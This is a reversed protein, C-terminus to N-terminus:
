SEQPPPQLAQNLKGTQYGELDLTIFTFGIQKLEFTIRNMLELNFLQEREEPAVEIRALDGHHRVRIQKLGQEILFAEAKEVMGLVEVTIRTHYPIRSALCAMSPKNWTQLDIKKSAERIDDKTFGAEILPSRINMEELAKMGPRYDSLDDINSGDMLTSFGKSSAHNVLSEFITKKCLYCRQPTNALVSDDPTNLELVEHTIGIQVALEKADDIENRPMFITDVTLALSNEGLVKFAIAALFSSDVGGSFAIVVRGTQKLLDTLKSLKNDVSMGM